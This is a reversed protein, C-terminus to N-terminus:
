RRAPLRIAPSRNTAPGPTAPAGVQRRAARRAARAAARLLGVAAGLFFVLGTLILLVSLTTLIASM